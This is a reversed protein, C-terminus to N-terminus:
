GESWERNLITALEEAVANPAMVNENVDLLTFAMALKGDKPQPFCIVQNGRAEYKYKM